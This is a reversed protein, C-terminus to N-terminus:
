PEEVGAMAALMLLALPAGRRVARPRATRREEKFIPKGQAEREKREQKMKQYLALNKRRREEAEYALKEELRIQAQRKEERIRLAEAERAIRLEARESAAAERRLKRRSNPTSESWNQVPEIGLARKKARRKQSRKRKKGM